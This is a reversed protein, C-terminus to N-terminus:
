FFIKFYKEVFINEFNHLKEFACLTQSFLVKWYLISLSARCTIDFFASFKAKMRLHSLLILWFRFTFEHHGFKLLDAAPPIVGHDRLWIVFSLPVSHFTWNNSSSFQLYMPSRSHTTLNLLLWSLYYELFGPTFEGGSVFLLLLFGASTKTYGITTHWNIVYMYFSQFLYWARVTKWSSRLRKNESGLLIKLVDSCSSIISCLAAASCTYFWCSNKNTTLNLKEIIKKNIFCDALSVIEYIVLTTRSESALLRGGFLMQFSQFSDATQTFHIQKRKVWM